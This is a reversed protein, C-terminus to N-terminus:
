QWAPGADGVAIGQVDARFATTSGGTTISGGTSTMGKQFVIGNSGNLTVTFTSADEVVSPALSAGAADKAQLVTLIYSQATGPSTDVEIRHQGIGGGEAVVRLSPSAPVLTTMVLAQGGNTCTATAAGTTPNTECHSLFTKTATASSSQVRDLIVLTELGRVFVYERVWRV